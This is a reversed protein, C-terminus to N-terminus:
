NISTTCQNLKWCSSWIKAGTLIDLAHFYSGSGFYIVGNSITLEPSNDEEAKVEGPEYKWVSEGTEM